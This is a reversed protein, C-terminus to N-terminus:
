FPYTVLPTPCLAPNNMYISLSGGGGDAATGGLTFVATALTQVGTDPPAGTRYIPYAKDGTDGLIARLSRADTPAPLARVRALRHVSSPDLQQHPASSGNTAVRGRLRRYMNFHDYNVAAPSTAPLSGVRLLDHADPGCEMTWLEGNGGARRTLGFNVNFGSAGKATVRAVLDAPSSAEVAHRTLFNRPIAGPATVIPRPFLANVSFALGHANFAFASTFMQGPYTYATILPGGAIRAHVVYMNGLNSTDGDENHAIYSSAAGDGDGDGTARLLLDSCDTELPADAAALPVMEHGINNLFLHEFSIGAGDAMGRIETVYNPFTTNATTFYTEYYARGKKTAMFPLLTHQFSGSAALQRAIAAGFQRGVAFGVEYHTGEVRIEPIVNPYRSCNYPAPAAVAAVAAATAPMLLLMLRFQM